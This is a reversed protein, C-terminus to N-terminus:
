EGLLWKEAYRIAASADQGWADAGTYDCIRRDIQGGGIMIKVRKRMGAAEFAEVTRKMSEFALTLFGSLGVVTAGAERTKEVFTEPPVDVGLDIVKFGYSELMFVVLNKALDHIDGQVTGFVIKGLKKEEIKGHLLPRLMENAQRLIEGAMILDNLFYENAEFREGVIKMARKLIEMIEYPNIGSDLAGRVAKLAESEDLDAITEVLEDYLKFVM